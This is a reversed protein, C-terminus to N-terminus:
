CSLSLAMRREMWQLTAGSWGFFSKPFDRTPWNTPSRLSNKAPARTFSVTVPSSSGWPRSLSRASFSSRWALSRWCCRECCPGSGDLGLFLFRPPFRLAFSARRLGRWCRVVGTSASGGGTESSQKSSRSPLLCRNVAAPTLSTLAAFGGALRDLFRALLLGEVDELEEEAEEEEEDDDDDDEEEPLALEKQSQSKAEEEDDSDELEDSSSSRDRASGDAGV